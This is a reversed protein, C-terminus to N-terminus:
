SSRHPATPRSSRGGDERGMRGHGRPVIRKREVADLMVQLPRPAREGIVPAAEQREALMVSLEVHGRERQARRIERVADAPEVAVHRPLHPLRQQCSRSFAPWRGSVCM